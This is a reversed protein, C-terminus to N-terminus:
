TEAFRQVKHKTFKMMEKPHGMQGELGRL